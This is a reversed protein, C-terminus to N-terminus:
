RGLFILILITFRQHKAKLKGDTGFVCTNYLNHGWREPMSGGVITIKLCRSGESLMATSPSTDGGADIDEAYVPFSDNSYPSNWIELLLVLQAGKVAAEEIAQRAHAIHSRSSISQSEKFEPSLVSSVNIKKVMRKAMRRMMKVM